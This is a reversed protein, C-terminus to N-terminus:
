FDNGVDPMKETWELAMSYAKKLESDKQWDSFFARIEKNEFLHELTANIICERMDETGNKLLKELWSKIEEVIKRSVDKDEWFGEFWNKLNFGAEYRSHAWNNDPNETFCLHFYHLIFELYDKPSLYPQIKMYYKKETVFYYLVGLAEINTTSMWRKIKKKDFKDTTKLDSNSKFYSYIKKGFATKPGFNDM